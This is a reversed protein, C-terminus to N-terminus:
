LIQDRLGKEGSERKGADSRDFARTSAKLAGTLSFRAVQFQGGEKPFAIGLEGGIEMADIMTTSLATTLLYRAKDYIKCRLEVTFAGAPTTILAPVQQDTTCTLAPNFFAVCGASCVVGFVSGSANATSALVAAGFRDVTWDGFREIPMVPPAPQPVPTTMMPPPTRSRQALAEPIFLIASVLVAWLLKIM